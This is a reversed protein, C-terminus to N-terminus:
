WWVQEGKEYTFIREEHGKTVDSLVYLGTIPINRFILIDSTATQTGLLVWSEDKWYYLEYKDGVEINNGDNRPIYCLKSVRMPHNLQLGVWHGDPSVASFGTLIDGDFVKEKTAWQEGETGIIKGKIQKGKDDYFALENINCYSGNPGIYRLYRYLGKDKIPIRYWNGNTIGQHIYLDTHQSFDAFNSGQFKGGSMRGNFFDQKGM